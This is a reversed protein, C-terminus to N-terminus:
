IKYSTGYQVFMIELFFVLRSYGLFPIAKFGDMQEKKWCMIINELVYNLSMM